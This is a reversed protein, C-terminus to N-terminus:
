SALTTVMKKTYLHYVGFAFCSFLIDGAFSNIFFGTALENKYFPIAMAYCNILGQLNFAYYGGLWTGFNSLVFFLLSGSVTFGLVSGANKNKLQTGLLTVLALAAYNVLQSVGYYGPTRTFLSFGIDSLLMTALPIIYAWSKNKLISGSFIGIGAIPVLHYWHLEASAIRLVATLAVLLAVVLIQQQNKNM